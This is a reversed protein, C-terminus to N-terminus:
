VIVGEKLDYTSLHMLQTIFEDEIEGSDVLFKLADTQSKAIVTYEIDTADHLFTILKLKEDSMQKM